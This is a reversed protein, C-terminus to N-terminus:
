NKPSVISSAPDHPYEPTKGQDDRQACSPNVFGCIVFAGDAAAALEGADSIHVLYTKGIGKAKSLCHQIVWLLTKIIYCGMSKSCVQLDIFPPPETPFDSKSKTNGNYSACTHKLLKMNTHFVLAHNPELVHEIM